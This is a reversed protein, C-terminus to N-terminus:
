NAICKGKSNAYAQGNTKLDQNAKEDADEQSITSEYTGVEVTYNVTEPITKSNKCDNKTFLKSATTNAYTFVVSNSTVTEGLTLNATSKQKSMAVSKYLPKANFECDVVQGKYNYCYAELINFNSDKVFKLRNSSDYDYYTVLATPDTIRTVGILPKYMYTTTKANGASYSFKSRLNNLAAAMSDDSSANQVAYIWSSSIINYPANEIKVSPLTKDYGWIISTPQAGELTYQLINGKDDYLDYSIKKDLVANLAAAGKNELIYKPLLLNSTAKSKDYVTKQESLKNGSRFTQTNLISGVRNAAILEKVFPESAMEPDQPYFYKTALVENTLSTSSKVATLQINYPLNNYLYEESEEVVNGEFYNKVVKSKLKDFGTYIRFYPVQLDVPGTPLIVNPNPPTLIAGANLIHSSVVNYKNKQYSLYNLPGLGFDLLKPYWVGEPYFHKSIGFNSTGCLENQDLLQYNIEDVYGMNTEPYSGYYNFFDERIIDGDKFYKKLILKGRQWERPEFERYRANEPLESFLPDFFSFYSEEKIQKKDISNHDIQTVKTYGVNSGSTKYLPLISSSSIRVGLGVGYSSSPSRNSVNDIYSPVNTIRGSTNKDELYIFDTRYKTDNLNDTTYTKINKIRLGGIAVEDRVKEIYKVRFSTNHYYNYDKPESLLYNQTVVTKLRFIGKGEFFAAKIEGKSNENKSITGLYKFMLYTGNEQKKEIYFDVKNFEANIYEYRPVRFPLNSNIILSAEGRILAAALNSVEFPNSYFVKNFTNVENPEPYFYNLSYGSIYISGEKEDFRDDVIEDFLRGAIPGTLAKHNEYDFYKVGGEPFKISKLSFTKTYLTDVNREYGYKSELNRNPILYEPFLTINSNKGNFYGWHDQAKSIKSPIKDFMFYNFSYNEIVKDNNSYFKVEDLRLRKNIVADSFTNVNADFYTQVLEIKKILNGVNNYIKIEQLKKAGTQLDLRDGYLFLIKGLPFIIESILKEFSTTKSSEYSSYSYAPSNNTLYVSTYAGLNTYLNYNASIYSYVIEKNQPSVIKKLQWSQDFPSGLLYSISSRGDKGLILNYGNSLKINFNDFFSNNPITSLTGLEYKIDIDDLPFTIFKRLEQSFMFKGSHGFFSYFFDDPRSDAQPYNTTVNEGARFATDYFAGRSQYVPVNCEYFEGSNGDLQSQKLGGVGYEDNYSKHIFYREDPLGHNDRTIQGGINLSWGLGISTADEEVKIGGTNYSLSIPIEMGDLNISYLPIDISPQGTYLSVNNLLRKKFQYAEPPLPIGYDYEASKQSYLTINLLLFIIIFKIKM